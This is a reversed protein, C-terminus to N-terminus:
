AAISVELTHFNTERWILFDPKGRRRTISSVDIFESLLGDRANEVVIRTEGLRYLAADRCGVPAVEHRRLVYPSADLADQLGSAREISSVPM